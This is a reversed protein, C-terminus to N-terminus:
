FFISVTSGLLRMVASATVLSSHIMFADGSLFISVWFKFFICAVFFSLSAPLFSIATLLNFARV